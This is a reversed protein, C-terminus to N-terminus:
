LMGVQILQRLLAGDNLSGTTETYNTGIAIPSANQLKLSGSVTHHYVNWHTAGPLAVPSTVTLVDNANIAKTVQESAVSQGNATVYTVAVYYTRAGKSGSTSVGTTPSFPRPTYGYKFPNDTGNTLIMKNNFMTWNLKKNASLGSKITTNFASASSDYRLM